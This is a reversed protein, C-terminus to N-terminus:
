RDIEPGGPAANVREEFEDFGIDFQVAPRANLEVVGLQTDLTHDILPTFRADDLPIARYLTERM